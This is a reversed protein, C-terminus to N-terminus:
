STPIPRYCPRHSNHSPPAPTGILQGIYNVVPEEEAVVVVSDVRKEETRKKGKGKKQVHGERELEELVVLAQESLKEKAEQKSAFAGAEDLSVDKGNGLLGAFIVKSGWGQESSGTSTFIPRSIGLAQCKEHLLIIHKSSRASIARPLPAPSPGPAAPPPHAALYDRLSVVTDVAAGATTPATSNPNDVVPLPVPAPTVTELAMTTSGQQQPQLDCFNGEDQERTGKFPNASKPSTTQPVILYRLLDNPATM